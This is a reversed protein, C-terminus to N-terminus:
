TEINLQLSFINEFVLIIAIQQKLIAKGQKWLKLERKWEKTEKEENKSLPTKDAPQVTCGATQKRFWGSAHAGSIRKHQYFMPIAMYFKSIM